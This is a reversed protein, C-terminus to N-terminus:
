GKVDTYFLQVVELRPNAGGTDFKVNMEGLYLENEHAGISRSDGLITTFDSSPYVVMGNLYATCDGINTFMFAFCGATRIVAGGRYMIKVDMNYIRDSRM